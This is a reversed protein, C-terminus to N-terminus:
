PVAIFAIQKGRGDSQHILYPGLRHHELVHLAEQRWAELRVPFAQESGEGLQTIARIDAQDICTIM